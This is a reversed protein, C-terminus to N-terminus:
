SGAELEGDRRWSGKSYVEITDWMPEQMKKKGSRYLSRRIIWNRQEMSEIAAERNSFYSFYEGNTIRFPHVTFDIMKIGM